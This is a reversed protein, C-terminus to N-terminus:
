VKKQKEKENQRCLEQYGIYKQYKWEIFCKCQWEVEKRIPILLVKAALDWLFFPSLLTRVQWNSCRFWFVMHDLVTEGKVKM